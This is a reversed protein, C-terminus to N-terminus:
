LSKYYYGGCCSCFIKQPRYTASHVRLTNQRIVSQANEDIKQMVWATIYGSLENLVNTALSEGNFSSRVIFEFFTVARKAYEPNVKDFLSNYYQRDGTEKYLQYREEWEDVTKSFFSMGIRLFRYCQENKPIIKDIDDILPRLLKYLVYNVAQGVAKVVLTRVDSCCFKFLNSTLVVLNNLSMGSGEDVKLDSLMGSLATKLGALNSSSGSNYNIKGSTPAKRNLDNFFTEAQKPKLSIVENMDVVIGGLTIKGGEASYKVGAKTLRKTNRTLAAFVEDKNPINRIASIVEAKARTSDNHNNMTERM